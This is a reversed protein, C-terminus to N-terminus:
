AASVVRVKRTAVKVGFEDGFGSRTYVKLTYAGPTMGDPLTAKVLLLDSYTVALRTEAGDKDALAVYEDDKATDPGLDLGAISIDRRLEDYEGTTEELVSDIRPNAGGTMNEPTVGSLASKFPDLEFANLLIFNRGKVWPGIDSAFSGKVVHRVSAVGDIVTINGKDAHSRLVKALAKNTARIQTVTYGLKAALWAYTEQVSMTRDHQVIGIYLPKEATSFASKVTIFKPTAM